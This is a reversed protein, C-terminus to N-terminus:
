TLYLQVERLKCVKEFIVKDAISKVYDRVLQKKRALQQKNYAVQDCYVQGPQPNESCQRVHNHANQSAGRLCFACFSIRCRSCTLACCADFDVFVQSCEPCKKNLIHNTIHREHVTVLNLALMEKVEDQVRREVILDTQTNHRQLLAKYVLEANIIGMDKTLYFLGCKDGPCMVGEDHQLHSTCEHHVLATFDDHCCFHKGSPCRVGGDQFCLKNPDCEANIICVRKGLVQRMEEMTPRKGTGLARKLLDFLQPHQEFTSKYMLLTKMADYEIASYRCDLALVVVVTAAFSYVDRQALDLESPKSKGSLQKLEPAMFGLSGMTNSNNTHSSFSELEKSSEFDILKPTADDLESDLCINQPKIDRHFVNNEHLVYLADSIQALVDLKCGFSRNPKQESWYKLDGGPMFRFQLWVEEDFVLGGECALISKHATKRSLLLGRRLKQIESELDNNVAM